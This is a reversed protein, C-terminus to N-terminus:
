RKRVGREWGRGKRWRVYVERKTQPIPTGIERKM